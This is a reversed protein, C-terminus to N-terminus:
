NIVSPVVKPLRHLLFSLVEAHLEHQFSERNFGKPDQSPLFKTNKMVEPFPSLFSFHGANKVLRHQVDADKPLGDLILHVHYGYRIFKNKEEHALLVPCAPGTFEDKEGVLMLIPCNIKRLAGDAQFWVSAPALLVLAKIREDPTVPIPHFQGDSSEAPLSRPMGGAVALATYGGMSHGILAVSNPQLGTKFQDSEFLWDIALRIHKPRDQLNDVTGERSNDNRHNFPHQPLAVIFGHCALYHALTRYALPAGGSGHSILVLPYIGASINADMAVTLDYPGLKVMKEPTTTPYMIIM